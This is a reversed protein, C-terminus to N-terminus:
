HSHSKPFPGATPLLSAGHVHFSTWAWPQVGEGRGAEKIWPPAVPGVSGRGGKTNIKRTVKFFLDKKAKM